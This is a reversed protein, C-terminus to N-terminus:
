SGPGMPENCRVPAVLREDRECNRANHEAVVSVVLENRVVLNIRSSAKEIVLVLNAVLSPGVVVLYGAASLLACMEALNLQPMEV